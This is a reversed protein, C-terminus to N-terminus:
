QVTGHFTYNDTSTPEWTLCDSYNGPVYKALCLAYTGSVELLPDAATYDDSDHIGTLVVESYNGLDDRFDVHGGHDPPSHADLALFHDASNCETGPHEDYFDM